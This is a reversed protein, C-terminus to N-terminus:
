ETDFRRITQSGSRRNEQGTAQPWALLGGSRLCPRSFVLLFTVIEGAISLSAPSAM